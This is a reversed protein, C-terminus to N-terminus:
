DYRTTSQVKGMLSNDVPSNSHLIEGNAFQSNRTSTGPNLDEIGLIKLAQDMVFDLAVEAM